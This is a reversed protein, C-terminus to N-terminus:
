SPFKVEEGEKAGIWSGCLLCPSFSQAHRETGLSELLMRKSKAFGLFDKSPRGPDRAERGLKDMAGRGQEVCELCVAEAGQVSM